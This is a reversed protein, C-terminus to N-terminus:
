VTLQPRAEPDSPTGKRWPLGAGQSCSGPTHPGVRPWLLGSSWEWSLGGEGWHCHRAPVQTEGSDRRPVLLVAAEPVKLGLPHFVRGGGWHRPAM